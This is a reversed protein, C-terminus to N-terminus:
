ASMSLIKLGRAGITDICVHRYHCGCGALRMTQVSGAKASQVFEDTLQSAHLPFTVLSQIKQNLPFTPILTPSM